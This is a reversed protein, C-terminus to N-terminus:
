LGEAQPPVQGAGHDPHSVGGPRARAPVARGPAFGGPLERRGRGGAPHVPAAAHRHLRARPVPHPGPPPPAPTLLPPADGLVGVRGQPEGPPSAIFPQDTHLNVPADTYGLQDTNKNTVNDTRLDEIRGFHTEIVDAGAPLLDTIIAETDLGRGLVIVLGYRRLRERIAAYYAPSAPGTGDAYDRYRLTVAALNSEPPAVHTENRSYAHEQLWALPYRSEHAHPIPGWRVVLESRAADFSVQEPEIDLPVDAADLTREGTKPHRCFQTENCLHRLWFWHFDLHSGTGDLVRVFDRHREIRPAPSTASSAMFRRPLQVAAAAPAARPRLAAAVAPAQVARRAAPQGRLLLRPLAAAM